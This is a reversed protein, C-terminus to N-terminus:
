GEKEETSLPEDLQEKETEISEGIVNEIDKGIKNLEKDASNYHNVTTKLSSGLKRFFNDYQKFHRSLKNVNKQISEANKEIKFARFGYIVSQLYAYFTTPSVIIVKKDNIAYNVMNRSNPKVGGVQKVLLDYYIGEAPIYMFAFPLTGEKPKIYKATEDIRKKLDDRFKKELSARREDDEENNLETYTDLSFKADIPIIGEPTHLVADVREGNSFRYEMEYVEPPLINSLILKLSAEGFNGREKQSKLTKQLDQLQEAISFIQNSREKVESQGKAVDKLQENVQKNIDQILRQSDQFQNQVSRHTESMKTDMTKNLDNMQQFILDLNQSSSSSDKGRSKILLYFMFVNMLILLGISVSLITM